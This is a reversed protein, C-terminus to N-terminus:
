RRVESTGLDFGVIAGGSPDNEAFVTGGHATIIHQVISLGLGSGPRSRADVARYFREFVHPLDDLPIGSGQDHVEVRGGTLRITIRGEPPSWKVANDVLNGLARELQSARGIVVAGSGEVSISTRSRRRYADAVTESLEDLSVEREPEDSHGVDTALAVLEASLETLEDSESLAADILERRQDPTLDDARKRLTELSTKLATLPTRFEHSADSVLRQQQRRSEALSDLMSRFALALRGIEGPAESDLEADLKETRAVSEATETLREIPRVAKGALLRGTGAVLAIGIAGLLALQRTLSEIADSVESADIAVQVAGTDLGFPRGLDGTLHATIMRYPVGDVEVDRLKPEGPARALDLDTREVPLDPTRSDVKLVVSGSQDVFQVIADLGVLPNRAMGMGRGPGGEPFRPLETDIRDGFSVRRSLDQDIRSELESRTAVLAAAIAAGIAIASVAALTVAWRWRLSM